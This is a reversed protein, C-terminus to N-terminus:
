GQDLSRPGRSPKFPVLRPSLHVGVLFWLPVLGLIVLAMVVQLWREHRTSEFAFCAMIPTQLFFLHPAGSYTGHCIDTTLGTKVNNRCWGTYCVHKIDIRSYKMPWEGYQPNNAFINIKKFSKVLINTRGRENLITDELKEM